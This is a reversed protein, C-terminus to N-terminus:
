QKKSERLRQLKELIREARAIHELAQENEPELELVKKWSAIAKEYQALGYYEVGRAIDEKVQQAILRELQQVLQRENDDLEGLLKLRTVLDAAKSLQQSDLAGRFSDILIKRMHQRSKVVAQRQRRADEAQSRLQKTVMSDQKKTLSNLADEIAPNPDLQWALGLIREARLLDGQELALKGHESLAGAIKKSAKHTDERQKEKFWNSSTVLALEKEILRRERLWEGQVILLDLELAAMRKGQKLQLSQFASKLKESSPLRKLAEKYNQKALFWTGARELKNGELLAQQEYGQAKKDVDEILVLVQSYDPHSTSVKSLIMQAQEYRQQEILLDIKELLHSSRADLYACGQVFVVFFVLIALKLRNM